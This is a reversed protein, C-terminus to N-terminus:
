DRHDVLRTAHAERRDRHVVLWTVRADRAFLQVELLRGVCGAWEGPRKVMVVPCAALVSVRGAMQSACGSLNAGRSALRSVRSARASVDGASSSVRRASRVLCGAPRSAQGATKCSSWIAPGDRGNRHGVHRACVQAGGALTRRSTSSSLRRRTRSFPSWGESRDSRGFERCRGGMQRRWWREAIRRWRNGCGCEGGFVPWRADLFPAMGSGLRSTRRDGRSRGDKGRSRGPDRRSRGAVWRSRLM